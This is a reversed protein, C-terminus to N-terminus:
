CASPVSGAAFAEKSFSLRPWPRAVTPRIGNELQSVFISFKIGILFVTTLFLYHVIKRNFQINALSFKDLIISTNKM